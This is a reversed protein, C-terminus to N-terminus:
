ALHDLMPIHQLGNRLFRRIRVPHELQARQTPGSFNKRACCDTSSKECLEGLLRLYRLPSPVTNRYLPIAAESTNRAPDKDDRAQSPDSRLQRNSTERVLLSTM